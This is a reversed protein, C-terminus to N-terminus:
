LDKENLESSIIDKVKSIIENVALSEEEKTARRVLDVTGEKVTKKGIVIRLPYGILDADKFKVGARIDRDDLLVEIGESLLKQYIEEAYNRQEEDKYNVPVIVVHYPAISMPWIIGDDDYNQEITAALTRGVGIGYCGMFVKKIEGNEDTYTVNLSDSYKTGLQFVQGVEIGRAKKLPSECKPCKEGEEVVRIDEVLDINFDKGPMVNVLHYDKKNAGIVANYVYPVEKDAIIKVGELGLPGVYGVTYGLKNKIAEESALQLNICDLSNQLKIENLERDGRVLACVLKDDAEYFLAKITKKPSIKLFNALKEITSAGPTYVEEMKGPEEQPLKEPFAEAKEVNAAYKCQECYVLEAEGNEALVMFEHSINGGIAGSDAEVARYKLGCRSFVKEYADYMIQYSKKMGEEDKDFSYLDKMIFERGRMLGFRPRREDRYKNQIQYLLLPLEKYSSVERRVLDSIIEEHTPGLCFDRGHRDQLRFMEAGYVEWRGSEQWLEAPQIIPLIIEQGGAKNMEERIIKMVKQLSRQALPMYTYIGSASKRIFGARLMLQHSVIEAEAPVERLTSIFAKSARM